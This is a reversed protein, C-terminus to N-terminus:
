YSIFHWFRWNVLNILKSFNGPNCYQNFNKNAYGICTSLQLACPTKHVLSPLKLQLCQSSCPCTLFIAQTHAQPNTYDRKIMSCKQVCSDDLVSTRGGIQKWNCQTLFRSSTSSSSTLFRSSTSSSNQYFQYWDKKNFMMKQMWGWFLGPLTGLRGKCEQM